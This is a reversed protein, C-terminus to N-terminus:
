KLRFNVPISIWVGVSEERQKAPKFRTKRIAKIAAEDLGSNPIGRLISTETVRGNKDVYVQVIVTGSIRNEKASKPYKPRIPSLPQPPDYPIFKGQDKAIESKTPSISKITDKNSHISLVESNYSELLKAMGETAMSFISDIAEYYSPFQVGLIDSSPVEVEGYETKLKIRTSDLFMLKGRFSDGNTTIVGYEQSFASSTIISLIIVLNKM